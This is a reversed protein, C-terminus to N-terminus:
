LRMILTLSYRFVTISSRSTWFQRTTKLLLIYFASPPNCIRGSMINVKESRPITESFIAKYLKKSSLFVILIWSNGLQGWSGSGRIHCNVKKPFIFEPAEEDLSNIFKEWDIKVVNVSGDEASTTEVYLIQSLRQASLRGIGKDGLIIEDDESKTEKERAKTDTGIEFFGNKLDELSMGKGNDELILLPYDENILLENELGKPLNSLMNASGLESLSSLFHLRVERSRADYSNKILETIAIEDSTILATGLHKIIRPNYKFKMKQRSSDDQEDGM